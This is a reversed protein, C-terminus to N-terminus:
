SERPSDHSVATRSELAPRPPPKASRRQLLRLERRRGALCTTTFVAVHGNTPRTASSVRTVAAISPSDPPTSKAPGAPTPLVRSAKSHRPTPAPCPYRVACTRALRLEAVM